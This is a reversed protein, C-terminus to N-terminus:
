GHLWKRVTACLHQYNGSYAERRFQTIQDRDFGAAQLTQVATDMIEGASLNSDLLQDLTLTLGYGEEEREDILREKAADLARRAEEVDATAQRVSM